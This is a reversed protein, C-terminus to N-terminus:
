HSGDMSHMPDLHWQGMEHTVGDYTTQRSPRRGAEYCRACRCRWCRSDCANHTVGHIGTDGLQREACTFLSWVHGERGGRSRETHDHWADIRRQM